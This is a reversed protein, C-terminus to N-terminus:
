VRERCSARGIEAHAFSWEIKGFLNTKCIVYSWDKKSERMGTTIFHKKDKMLQFDHPDLEYFYGDAEKHNEIIIPDVIKKANKYDVITEKWETSEAIAIAPSETTPAVVINEATMKGCGCACISGMVFVLGIALAIGIRKGFKKEM